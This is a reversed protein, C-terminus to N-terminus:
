KISYCAFIKNPLLYVECLIKSGMVPMIPNNGYWRIQLEVTKFIRIFGALRFVRKNSQIDLRIPSFEVIIVALILKSMIFKIRM